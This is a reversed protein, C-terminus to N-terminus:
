KKACFKPGVHWLVAEVAVVAILGAALWAPVPRAAALLWGLLLGGFAMALLLGLGPGRVVEALAWAVSGLAAALLALSLLTAPGLWRILRSVLWVLLRQGM